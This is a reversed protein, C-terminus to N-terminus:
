INKKINRVNTILGRQQQKWGKLNNKINRYEKNEDEIRVAEEIKALDVNLFIFIM